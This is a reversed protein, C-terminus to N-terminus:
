RSGSRAPRCARRRRARGASRAARRADSSRARCTRSARADDVLPPGVASQGAIRSAPPGPRQSSRLRRGRCAPQGPRSARASAPVRRRGSRRAWSRGTYESALPRRGTRAVVRAGAAVRPDVTQAGFRRLRDPVARVRQAGDALAVAVGVGVLEGAPLREAVLEVRDLAAPRIARGDAGLAALDRRPRRRRRPRAPPRRRPRGSGPGAPRHRRAETALEALLLRLQGLELDRQAVEFRRPEEELAAVGAEDAVGGLAEGVSTWIRITSAWSDSRERSAWSTWSPGAWTRDFAIKWTSYMSRTM